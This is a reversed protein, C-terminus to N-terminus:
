AIQAYIQEGVHRAMYPPIAEKIAERNSMWDIEMVSFVPEKREHGSVSVFKGPEWHGAKAAAVPHPWGCEKNLRIAGDSAPLAPAALTLGGGPEFLRHRYGPRGFMWMCLTTPSRMDPRAGGVNEIVWPRNQATLRERTPAILRQYTEALGPRCYSQQSYGQCPCGTVIVDFRRLWRTDELRELADACIFGSAGSRMYGAECRPNNDIGWMEFGAEVMGRTTGGEGCFVDLGAPKAPRRHRAIWDAM